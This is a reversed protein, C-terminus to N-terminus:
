MSVVEIPSVELSIVKSKAKEIEVDVVDEEEVDGYSDLYQKLTATYYFEFSGTFTYKGSPSEHAELYDFVADMIFEHEEDGGATIYEGELQDDMWHGYSDELEIMGTEKTYIVPEHDSVLQIYDEIYEERPEDYEPPDLWYEDRM